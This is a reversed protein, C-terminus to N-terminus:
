KLQVLFLKKLWIYVYLLHRCACGARRAEVIDPKLLHSPVTRGVQQVVTDVDHGLQGLSRALPYM